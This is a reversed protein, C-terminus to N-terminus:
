LASGYHRIRWTDTAEDYALRYLGGDTTRVRFRPGDPERWAKLVEEVDHQSGRWTFAMPRQAYTHGSYCSVVLERDNV